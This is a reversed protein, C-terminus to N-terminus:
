EHRFTFNSNHKFACWSSTCSLARSNVKSNSMYASLHYSERKTKAERYSNRTVNYFLSQPDRQLDAQPSDFESTGTRNVYLIFHLRRIAEFIWCLLQICCVVSLCTRGGRKRVAEYSREPRRSLAHFPLREGGQLGHCEWWEYYDEWRM